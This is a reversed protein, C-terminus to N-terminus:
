AEEKRVGLSIRSSVSVPRGLLVQLPPDSVFPNPSIMAAEVGPRVQLWDKLIEEIRSPFNSVVDQVVMPGRLHVHLDSFLPNPSKLTM